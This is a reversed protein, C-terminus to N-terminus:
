RAEALLQEVIAAFAPGVVDLSQRRALRARGRSVLRDRAAADDLVRVAVDGLGVVDPYPVTAAAGVDALDVLGGIAFGCTATGAAAAELPTLPQPDERSTMVLLDAAALFPAVADVEGVWCIEPDLRWLSADLDLRREDSSFRRGIWAASVPLTRRLQAVTALFLDAGKRWTAEGCGVVLPRDPPAGMRERARDAEAPSFSSPVVVPPLLRVRGSDVGLAILDTVAADSPALVLAARRTLALRADEPLGRLTDGEEHVYVASPLRPDLDLLSAAAVASNVLVAAPTEAGPRDLRRLDAELPGGKLLRVTYSVQMRGSLDVLLDHLVRPAGTRTAEHAIVLLHTM